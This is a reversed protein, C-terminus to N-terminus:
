ADNKYIHFYIYVCMCTSVCVSVYDSHYVDGLQYRPSNITKYPRRGRSLIDQINGRSLLIKRFYSKIFVGGRMQHGVETTGLAIDERGLLHSVTGPARELTPTQALPWDAVSLQGRMGSGPGEGGGWRGWNWGIEEGWLQFSSM